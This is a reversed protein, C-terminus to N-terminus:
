QTTHSNDSLMCTKSEKNHYRLNRASPGVSGATRESGICCDGHTEGHCTLCCDSDLVDALQDSVNCAVHPERFYVVRGRSSSERILIKEVSPIELIVFAQSSSVGVRLCKRVIVFVEIYSEQFDFKLATDLRAHRMILPWSNIGVCKWM